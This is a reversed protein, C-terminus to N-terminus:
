PLRPLSFTLFWQDIPNKAMTPLHTHAIFTKTCRHRFSEGQYWRASKEFKSERNQYDEPGKKAWYESTM